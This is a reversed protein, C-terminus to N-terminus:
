ERVVKGTVVSADVQIRWAYLGSQPFAEAPLKVNQWGAQLETRRSWVLRGNLDFLECQGVTAEGVFVPIDADDKVPNPRAALVIPRTDAENQRESPLQQSNAINSCNLDGIKIGYFGLDPYNGADFDVVQIEQPCTIPFPAELDCTDVFFRWSTNNPLETYIGLILNYLDLTDAGSVEGDNNADAAIYQWAQTFPQTGNLHQRILYLDYTSVGNLPNDDKFATLTFDSSLPFANVPFNTCGNQSSLLFAYFPPIGPPPPTPGNLDFAVDEIGAQNCYDKACIPITGGNNGCNSALDELTFTTTCFTANGFVDQAWLDVEQAGLDNCTWSYSTLPAGFMNTPFTTYAGHPCISYKLGLAGNNDTVFQLLDTAWLTFQGSPFINASLSSQCVIAPPAGDRVTFVYECVATGTPSTVTWRIRHTGYPLKPAKGPLYLGPSTAWVAKVTAVNGSITKRMRFRYKKADPVARNDFKQLTGGTYGPNNANNYRIFGPPISLISPGVVTEMVGDGDTDLFLQYDFSLAAPNVDSVSIFLDATAEPMDHTALQSQWFYPQNWLAPDNTTEDLFVPAGVPCDLIQPSQAAVNLAIAWACFLITKKM